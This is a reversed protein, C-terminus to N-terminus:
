IGEFCDRDGPQPKAQPDSLVFVETDLFKEVKEWPEEDFAFNIIKASAWVPNNIGLEGHKLWEPYVDAVAHDDGKQDAYNRFTIIRGKNRALPNCGFERATHSESYSDQVMHLLSGLAIFKVSIGDDKNRMRPNGNPEYHGFKLPNSSKKWEGGPVPDFLAGLTWGKKIMPYLEGFSDITKNDLKEESIFYNYTFKAWAMMKKKTEIATESDVSAMSHFFQLDGFHSRYLMMPDSTIKV